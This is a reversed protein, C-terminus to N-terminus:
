QSCGDRQSWHQKLPAMVAVTNSEARRLGTYGSVLPEDPVTCLFKDLQRKFADKTCNNLNRIAKPLCNFLKPGQMRISSYIQSQYTSRKILPINCKRGQRANTYWSIDRDGGGVGGINPTLGELICWTYIIIYRERRRQLSYLKLTKLREWYDLNKLGNVQRTFSRQIQEISQIIGKELPNWLQSCYDLHPIVLSKWLTLMIKKDRSKFTRMIWGVLQTARKIMGNIHAKYNTENSIMVGLDKVVEKEKIIKSQETFYCNSKHQKGYHLHEFKEGNLMMNNVESWKYLRNLDEQLMFTDLISEIAKKLRTDDAFSSLSSYEINEDIDSIMMIFLLPGLVSGQPVGSMTQVPESSAGDVVVVQKRNKLFSEIWSLLKGEVGLARLKTLLINHDVKDFAKSFDIYIVDVDKGEELISFIDDIHSLLQSLCSRGERFGHQSPNLLNNEDFHKTLNKRVIKEFVKTLHSTLSVPRYNAPDGQNGGKYIPTINNCKHLDVTIGMDMCSRWFIKLPKALKEKCKKLLIAPFGDPGPASNQSLTSIAEIIDNEDFVIDNLTNDCKKEHIEYTTLPTSFVSKYHEQLMNAM